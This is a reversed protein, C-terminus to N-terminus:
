FLNFNLTGVIMITQVVLFYIYTLKRTRLAAQMEFGGVIPYIGWRLLVLSLAVVSIPFIVNFGLSKYTLPTVTMLILVAVGLLQVKRRWSLARSLSNVKYLADEYEDFTDSLAPLGLASFLGFSLGAYVAVMSISNSVAYSGIMSALPWLGGTVIEKVLFMKKLRVGPYSYLIFVTFWLATFAFAGLNIFWSIFLGAAGTVYILIKAVLVEVTGAALPRNKKIVNFSDMERDVLDNYTYVSTVILATSTVALLTPIMPPAGKGVAM